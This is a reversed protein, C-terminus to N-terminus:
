CKLCNVLEWIQYNENWVDDSVLLFKKRAISNQIEQQVIELEHLHSSTKRELAELIARSIRMADFPDSVCVWIRKDFHSCVKVDNYALQALTTKGIGGLGQVEPVDIFSTTNPREPEEMGSIFNFNYRDKEQAIVDLRRNIEGIKLAIDHCLHIGRIPFCPFPICSCVKKKHTLANDVGQIQVKLISSSWEDLVNDMDYALGKLDELWIKVAEDKVQRKEADLLVARINRLTNTLKQVDNEAGVLLRLERQIQWQIVLALRELVISVLADAM